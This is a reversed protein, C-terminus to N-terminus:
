QACIPGGFDFLSRQIFLSCVALGGDYLGSIAALCETFAQNQPAPMSVFSPLTAARWSLKKDGPGALRMEGVRRGGWALRDQKSKDIFQRLGLPPCFGDLPRPPRCPFASAQRMGRGPLGGRGRAARVAARRASPWRASAVMAMLRASESQPLDSCRMPRAGVPDRGVYGLSARGPAVEGANGCFIKATMTPPHTIRRSSLRLMSDHTLFLTGLLGGNGVAGGM